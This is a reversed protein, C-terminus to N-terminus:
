EQKKTPPPVVPPSVPKEADTEPKIEDLADFKIISETGFKRYNRFQTENKTMYRGTKSM